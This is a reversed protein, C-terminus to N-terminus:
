LFMCVTERRSKPNNRQTEFGHLKSITWLLRCCTDQAYPRHFVSPLIICLFFRVQPVVTSPSPPFPAAKPKPFDVTFFHFTVALAEFCRYYPACVTCIDTSGIAESLVLHHPPWTNVEPPTPATSVHRPPLPSVSFTLSCKVRTSQRRRSRGATSSSM